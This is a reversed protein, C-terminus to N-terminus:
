NSYFNPAFCRRRMGGPCESATPTPCPSHLFFSSSFFPLFVVVSSRQRLSSYTPRERRQTTNWLRERVSPKDFTTQTLSSSEYWCRDLGPRRVPLRRSKPRALSLFSVTPSCRSNSHCRSSPSLSLSVPLHGARAEARSYGRPLDERPRLRTAPSLSRQLPTQCALWLWLPASV